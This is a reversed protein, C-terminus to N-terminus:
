SWRPAPRAELELPQAPLVIRELLVDAQRRELVAVRREEVPDQGLVELLQQRDDVRRGDPQAQWSNLWMRRRVRPAQIVGCSRSRIGSIRRLPGYVSTRSMTTVSLSRM